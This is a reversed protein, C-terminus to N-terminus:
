GPNGFLHWDNRNSKSVVAMNQESTGAARNNSTFKPLNPGIITLMFHGGADLTMMGKAGSGFQDTKIGDKETMSSVLAWTGVVDGADQALATCWSFVAIQSVMATAVALRVTNKSM